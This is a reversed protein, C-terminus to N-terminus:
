NYLLAKLINVSVNPSSFILICNYLITANTKLLCKTFRHSMKKLFALSIVKSTTFTPILFVISSVNGFINQLKKHKSHLIQTKSM